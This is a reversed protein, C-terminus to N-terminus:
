RWAFQTRGSSLDMDLNVISLGLQASEVDFHRGAYHRAIFGLLDRELEAASIAGDQRPTRNIARELQDKSMGTPHAVRPFRRRAVM